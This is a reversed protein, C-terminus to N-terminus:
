VKLGSVAARRELEKNILGLERGTQGAVSSNEKARRMLYPIVEKIPGFPIYKSANFGNQALNFSIHDSMGYLQSFHIHPHNSQLGLEVMRKTCYLNSEDNHSAVVLSIYDIQALCDDLAANYDRDVSIKDEHIPSRYNYKLAREREKEMYAGRVLKVGLLLKKEKCGRHSIRLFELRDHRYMQFTNYVICRGLNYKEIMQMVLADIPDQVWSEEADILVGINLRAGAECIKNLRAVCSEWEKGEGKTLKGVAFTYRGELYAVGSAHMLADLKELLTFNAIATVKISMFPISNQSAAHVIVKIFQQTAEDFSEEGVGAEAGYDLISQVEYKVLLDSIATTQGLTEGGVFQKFLTNRLITKILPFRIKVLFPLLKLGINLFFKNGMLSFLLRARKLESDSKYAFATKTNSFLM